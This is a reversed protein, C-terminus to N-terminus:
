AVADVADAARRAAVRHTSAVGGLALADPERVQEARLHCADLFLAHTLLCPEHARQAADIPIRDAAVGERQALTPRHDRPKDFPLSSHPTLEHPFRSFDTKM